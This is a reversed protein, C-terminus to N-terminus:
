KQKSHQIPYRFAPIYFNEIRKHEQPFQMWTNTIHTFSDPNNPNTRQINGM